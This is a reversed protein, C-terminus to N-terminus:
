SRAAASKQLVLDVEVPGSRHSTLIYARFINMYCMGSCLIVFMAAKLMIVYLSILSNLSVAYPLQPLPRDQFPALTTAIAGLSVLGFICCFIEVKWDKAAGLLQSQSQQETRFSQSITSGFGSHYESPTMLLAASSQIHDKRSDEQSSTLPVHLLEPPMPSLQYAENSSSIPKRPIGGPRPPFNEM